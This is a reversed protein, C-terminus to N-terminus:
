LLQIYQGNPLKIINELKTDSKLLYNSYVIKSLEYQFISENFGTPLREFYVFPMGLSKDRRRMNETEKLDILPESHDPLKFFTAFRKVEVNTDMKEFEYEVFSEKEWWAFHENKGFFPIYEATGNKLHQLLKNEYENEMNILIFVRYAPKILTAEETLYTTGKNAYGVTNSYKIVTKQFNGNDDGLPAIGVKLNKLKQYYEPFVGKEKYGELGVIAGLIGLLAPKHLMNYSLNITNNADPKRFFGFDGKLDISILKEM